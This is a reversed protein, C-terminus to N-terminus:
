GLNYKGMLYLLCFFMTTIIMFKYAFEENEISVRYKFHIPLAFIAYLIILGDDVNKQSIHERLNFNFLTAILSIILSLIIILLLYSYFNKGNILDYKELISIIDDIKM